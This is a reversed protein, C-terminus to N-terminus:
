ISEIIEELERMGGKKIVSYLLYFCAFLTGCLNILDGERANINSNLLWDYEGNSMLMLYLAGVSILTLFSYSSIFVIKKYKPVILITLYLFCITFASGNFFTFVYKMVYSDTDLYRGVSWKQLLILIGSCIAGGLMAIPIFFVWRLFMVFKSNYWKKDM